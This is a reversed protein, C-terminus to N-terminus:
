RFIFRCVHITDAGQPFGRTGLNRLQCRIRVIPNKGRYAMKRMKEGKGQHIGEGGPGIGIQQEAKRRADNDTQLDGEIVGMVFEGALDRLTRELLSTKGAGPSSILNLVLVKEAQFRARLSAAETDNAELINRVVSVEM